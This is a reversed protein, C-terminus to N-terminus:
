HPEEDTSPHLPMLVKFVTKGPQTDFEIVGGHDRVIKAVLALGLGSGTRKTSVFPDFLHESIDDPIGPGNDEVTIMLPLSVRTRTGPLTLHVGPRYASTLVIRGDTRDPGIAEAANKTLNLVAQILRDKDGSLPPLSPDYIEEISIHEAFGTQALRHVHNLVSHINVPEKPIPREDGFVEMRDVLDRIRDTETCIMQTWARGDDDQNMELLQAAGRIGSLPNKIEHALMSALGSVSRAAARHTFQREIMQAMSRQQLILIMGDDTDPLPAGYVDVLRESQTRPTGLDVNYENISVHTRRVQDMLALLPSGFAVLESIPTHRLLSIGAHFFAEAATNAELIRDDKDLILVVHPIANLIAGDPMMAVSGSTKPESNTAISM